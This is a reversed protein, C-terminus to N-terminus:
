DWRGPVHDPAYLGEIPDRAPVVRSDPPLEARRAALEEDSMWYWFKPFHEDLLNNYFGGIRPNFMSQTVYFYIPLVPLEELLISEADALLALREAPDLVAAADRILADYRASSWGTKNNENGTQFMDLFTNPDVYDGIWASRSVDYGLQRQTDLYVKFEQNLLRTDLGLHARWESAIFEAIDRHAESTNYHIEFTPFSRGEGPGWGAEALLRKAEAVDAALAAEYDREGGEFPTHAMRQGDPYGVMGPPVLSWAPQQGAKMIKDCIARRDICLALARRVRPDDFPPRTVNVRYFYSGLYPVPDFDERDILRQVQNTSVRDIWDVEGTLYMNLMTSYNEVALVDITEFAVADADWYHENRALRIRDNIRREAVRYPGNTVLNEPRLWELRWTEPWRERATELNTRNVPFLPYFAVLQEFYATPSDLEVVLTHADPAEIGVHEPWAHERRYTAADVLEGRELSAELAGPPCEIECWWDAGYPDDHEARSRPADPNERVVEGPIPVPSLPFPEPDEGDHFATWGVRARGDAAPRVWVDLLAGDARRVFYLDEPLLTYAEAGKVYWLQYVYEAATDPHLLREWSFVFDHATVPEGNSWRADDRLHFTYTRGDESLDHHTAIGPLPELTRPHRVYLGEFISRLVRGEPIGTVTAPDLSAIEGGNNYTFDAPELRAGLAIRALPLLVLALIAFPAAARLRRLNAGPGTAPSM